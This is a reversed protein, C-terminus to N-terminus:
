IGCFGSSCMPLEIQDPNYKGRESKAWKVVERIGEAGGKKEARFMYWMKREDSQNARSQNLEAEMEEIEDIRDDDVSALDIKNANVCPYCEMSRHPLVDFGAEQILINRELEKLNVLPQWLSRGGHKESEEIWEPASSRHVSEERRVGNVCVGECGPDLRDLLEASPKIKLYNTCFQHRNAPFCGEVKLVLNKFGVSETRHFEIGNGLCYKKMLNVRENWGSWAWGTDNFVVNLDKLGKKIAWRILAISDNGGSCFLFYM